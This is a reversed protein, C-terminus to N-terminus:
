ATITAIVKIDATKIVKQIISDNITKKNSSKPLLSIVCVKFDGWPVYKASTPM